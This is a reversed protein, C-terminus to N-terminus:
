VYCIVGADISQMQTIQTNIKATETQTILAASAKTHEPFMKELEKAIDSNRMGRIAQQASWESVDNALVEPLTTILKANQEIQKALFEGKGTQLYAQFAEFMNNGQKFFLNKEGELRNLYYEAIHRNSQFKKGAGASLMQKWKISNNRHLHTELRSATAECFKVFRYDKSFAKLLRVVEEINNGQNFICNIKYTVAEIARRYEQEIRRPPEWIEKEM